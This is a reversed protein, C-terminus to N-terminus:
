VPSLPDATVSYESSHERVACAHVRYALLIITKTDSTDRISVSSCLFLNYRHFCHCSFLQGDPGVYRGLRQSVPYRGVVVLEIGQAHAWALDERGAHHFPDGPMVADIHLILLRPFGEHAFLDEMTVIADISDSYKNQKLGYTTILVIHLAEKGETFHVFTANRERLLQETERDPDYESQCYKMECVDIVHDGRCLLLDIQANYWETGDTDVQKPIVM